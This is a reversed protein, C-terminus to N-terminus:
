YIYVYVYIIIQKIENLINKNKYKYLKFNKNKNIVSFTLKAPVLKQNQLIQFWIFSNIINKTITTSHWFGSNNM